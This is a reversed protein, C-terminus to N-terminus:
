SENIQGGLTRCTILGGIYLIGLLQAFGNGHSLLLIGPTSIAIATMLRLPEVIEDYFVNAKKIKATINKIKM